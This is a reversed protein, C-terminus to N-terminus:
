TSLKANFLQEMEDYTFKKRKIFLVSYDMFSQLDDVTGIMDMYSHELTYLAAFASSLNGLNAKRFNNTESTSVIRNHKVNNYDSWWTPTKYGKSVRYRLAKKTDYYTETRFSEWPKLNISDNLCCVYDMLSFMKPNPNNNNPTFPGDVVYFDDQIEYWWKYINNSRDDAQFDPNIISALAKGIVDIESCVAQYLKLYEISFADYNHVDFDVYRKTLLFENELERYYNWYNHEFFKFSESSRSIKNM